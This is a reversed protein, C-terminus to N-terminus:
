GTRVTTLIKYSLCCFDTSSNPSAHLCLPHRCARKAGCARFIAGLSVRAGYQKPKFCELLCTRDGYVGSRTFSVDLISELELM